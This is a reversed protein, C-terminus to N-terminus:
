TTVVVGAASGQAFNEFRPLIRTNTCIAQIHMIQREMQIICGITDNQDCFCSYISHYQEKQLTSGFTLQDGFRIVWLVFEFYDLGPVKQVVTM